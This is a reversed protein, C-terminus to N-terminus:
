DAWYPDPSINGDAEIYVGVDGDLYKLCCMSCDKTNLYEIFKTKKYKDQDINEYCGALYDIINNIM